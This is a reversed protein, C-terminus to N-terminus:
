VGHAHYKFTGTKATGSLDYLKVTFGTTTPTVTFKHLFGDGSLIDINVSPSDHFEKTFTIECGDAAVTVEGSGVEDVDPLDAYHNFASCELDQTLETRTLTMRLQYYRCKYDGPIWAAWDSWTDNDDSTKIEFTAAGAIEIGSWRDSDPLDAWTADDPEDSWLSDGESATVVSEIGIKFSAVYGVDKVDTVYTGTLVGTVLKLVDGSVETDSKTGTWSTQESFSKIINTFPINDITILAETATTSPNQSTDQAKIWYSQAPGERFNLIVLYNNKVDKAIIDGSEWSTGYRIEYGSLDLDSVTGWTLYMRDRSQRAVFWPVNSPPVSKGLPTISQTPAASLPIEQGGWSISTVAIKYSHLDAINGSITFHEGTTTGAFSYSLGGNDSIYIKAGVYAKVATGTLSPKSFWVDIATDITGDSLKIMRETLKLNEVPPVTLSLMSFNRQPIIVATDDYISENYEVAEIECECNRKRSISVIRGPFVIKNVEGFSYKSVYEVPASTFADSVNVETYTGAPDTVTKEEIVGKGFDVRVHYTKNAEIIVSRDLVVKTTTSGSGVCGSFGWQPVDHAIDIREGATRVISGIGGRIKVTRSIYKCTNIYNRGHRLAYSLKTGYYRIQKIHVPDGAAISAEDIVEVTETEYNHEEDDFQVQVVNPIDSKSGWNQSFSGKVINGMGFLQVPEDPKEVAIRVEGRDSRFPLGRFISCLQVILDLAKQPSDLVIDMRFRKEYGGEGDPVREDCYKSSEVFMALNLNTTSVYSGLGFLNNILLDYMCWLPNACYATTYTEGDWTLATGDSLLKYCDAVPDWYYDDWGVEAAGNMVKPCLVKRGRVLWEYDPFSGSLQEIALADVAGLAMCPFIQADTTIEDIYQLYLDGTHTFDSDDSTKTVRIDYQGATLGDKRFIRRISTRSEASLTTSGLDIWTESSSLKYEVKYTVDWALINGSSDQQFLGSPCQLQVEFAEVAVGNTTYTYANNKTLPVNFSILNHGDHFNPIVAPNLTGLRTTTTYGSFNSADNRNIRALTINDVEGHCLCMLTHLYNKDGDTSIYENIVNGGVLRTGYIVPIPRGADSTTRIGSWSYTPSGSDLGEGITDFSPVKPRQYAIAQYVSYATSAAVAVNFAVIALQQWLAMAAFETAGPIYGVLPRIIVEDGSDLHRRLNKVENGNVSIIMDKFDFRSKKLYRNITWDRNFPFSELKRGEGSLVNPIYKITIDSRIKM